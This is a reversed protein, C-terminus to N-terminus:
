IARRRSSSEFRTTKSTPDYIAIEITDGSKSYGYALVQHNDGIQNLGPKFPKGHVDVHVLGLPCLTGADLAPETEHNWEELM